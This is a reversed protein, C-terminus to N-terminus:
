CKIGLERCFFFFIGDADGCSGAWCCLMVRRNFFVFWDGYIFIVKGLYM